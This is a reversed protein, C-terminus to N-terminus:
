NVQIQITPGEIVRDPECKVPSRPKLTVTGKRRTTAIRTHDMRYEHNLWVGNEPIMEWEVNDAAEEETQAPPRYVWCQNPKLQDRPIQTWTGEIRRKVSLVVTEGQRVSTPSASPTLTVSQPSALVYVMPARQECGALWALVAAALLASLRALSTKRMVEKPM